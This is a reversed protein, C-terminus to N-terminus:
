NQNFENFIAHKSRKFISQGNLTSRKIQKIETDSVRFASPDTFGLDEAMKQEPFFKMNLSYNIEQQVGAVDTLKGAMLVYFELVDGYDYLLDYDKTTHENEAYDDDRLGWRITAKNLILKTDVGTYFFNNIGM